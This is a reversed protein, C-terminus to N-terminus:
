ISLGAMPLQIVASFIDWHVQVQVAMQFPVKNQKLPCTGHEWSDKPPPPSFKRLQDTVPKLAPPPPPLELFPPPQKYLDFDLHRRTWNWRDRDLVPKLINAFLASEKWEETLQKTSPLRFDQRCSKDSRQLGTVQFGSATLWAERSKKQAQKEEEEFDLPEVTPSLHKQSYTFRRGPEKAMERYLEKKALQSANLTQTSYNYVATASPSVRILKVVPQPLRQVCVRAINRQVLSARWEKSRQLMSNRWHLYREQHALVESTLTSTRKRRLVGYSPIPPSPLALLKEDSLDEQSIPIGFEQSLDKIMASSPLLDRVIVDRLRTSSHCIDHIRALAQFVSRPVANRVYLAPQRMLQALPKALRVHFPTTELDAYLRGRFLLQSDYLVKYKGREHAPVRWQHSEWLRHLGQRALGELVFLHLRGDLVHFGTLLDLREREAMKVRTRFASLIQQVSRAPYSDLELAQANIATVDQLLGHLLFPKRFDFVFVIRGFLSGALDPPGPRPRLAVAVDVRLKLQSHAELYHGAPVPRSQLVDAPGGAAKKGRSDQARDGSHPECSHIPAALNLYKHGLLLDAFSVRAVGYPDRREDERDFPNNETDKPSVFAQLHVPSGLPGEGFLTPKQCCEESKRDRDHVEVVMPPGELYEQLDQPDLAGLFIVNTDQFYVHTGHPEGSTKHVPTKFFRYRCYVPVCLRELEHIPVPQSPLCSACKIKIIMPNLDQKQEETMIPVETKLTLVCDLINASKLSSHSTIAQQRRYHNGGPLSLAPAKAAAAPVRCVALLQGSVPCQASVGCLVYVFRKGSVPGNRGLLRVCGQFGVRVSGRVQTQCAEQLVALLPTVVLQLCIFDQRLCRSGEPRKEEAGARQRRRRYSRRGIESEKGKNLQWVPSSATKSRLNQFVGPAGLLYPDAKRRVGRGAVLPAAGNPALDRLLDTQSEAKDQNEPVSEEWEVRVVNVKEPGLDFLRRQNLVLNRVEESSGVDELFCAAKLSYYRVKKPIRDKSDWLRFIIKHFNLKKLLEKTVNINFTQSWSVWLKDDECWPKVNKVGSDLFLKAVGPLLVMDVKKPEQDDPLLFYEMHYFHRFRAAHHRLKPHKKYKDMFSAHKVKQDTNVSFALSIVFSCPVAQPADSDFTSALGGSSSVSSCPGEWDSEQTDSRLCEGADSESRFFSPLSSIAACGNRDEDEWDWAKLSM